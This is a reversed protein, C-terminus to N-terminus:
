NIKSKILPRGMYADVFKRMLILVKLIFARMRPTSSEYKNIIIHALLRAINM